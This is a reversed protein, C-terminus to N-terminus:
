ELYFKSMKEKIRIQLTKGLNPLNYLEVLQETSTCLDTWRHVITKKSLKEIKENIKYLEKIESITVCHSVWISSVIDTEKYLDVFDNFSNCLSIWEDIVQKKLDSDKHLHKFCKKIEDLTNSRKFEDFSLEEWRNIIIAKFVSSSGITETYIKELSDIEFISECIKKVQDVSKKYNSNETNTHSRLLFDFDYITSCVSFLKDSLIFMRNSYKSNMEATSTNYPYITKFQSEKELLKYESVTFVNNLKELFLEDFKKCIFSNLEANGGIRSLKENLDYLFSLKLASNNNLEFWCFKHFKEIISSNLQYGTSKAYNSSHYLSSLIYIEDLNNALAIWKEWCSSTNSFFGQYRKFIFHMTNFSTVNIRNMKEEFLRCRKKYLHDNLNTGDIVISIESFFVKLKNTEGLTQTNKILNSLYDYINTILIQLQSKKLSLMQSMEIIQEKNSITSVWRIIEKERDDNKSYNKLGFLNKFDQFTSCLTNWKQFINEFLYKISKFNRIILENYLEQLESISCCVEFWKELAMIQIDPYKEASMYVSKVEQSTTALSLLTNMSFISIRDKAVKKLDPYPVLSTNFAIQDEPSLTSFDQIKETFVAIWKEYATVKIESDDPAGYFINGIEPLESAIILQKKTFQNWKKLIIKRIISKERSSGYVSRYDDFSQVLKLQKRSLGDWKKIITSTIPSNPRTENHYIKSIILLDYEYEIKKFVLMDWSDAASQKVISKSASNEYVRRFDSITTATELDRLALENWKELLATKIHRYKSTNFVKNIEVISDFEDITVVIDKKVGQNSVKQLDEIPIGTEQSM